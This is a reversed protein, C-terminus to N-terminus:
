KTMNGNSIKISKIGMDSKKCEKENEFSKDCFLQQKM